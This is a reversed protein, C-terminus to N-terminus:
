PKALSNLWASRVPNSTPSGGGQLYLQGDDGIHVVGGIRQAEANLGERVGPKALALAFEPKLYQGVEPSYYHVEGTRKNTRIQMLSENGTADKLTKTEIDYPNKGTAAADRLGERYNEGRQRIRELDMQTSRQLAEIHERSKRDLSSNSLDAANHAQQLTLNALERSSTNKMGEAQAGEVLADHAEKKLDKLDAKLGAVAPMGAEGLSGLFNPNKSAMLALGFNMLAQNAAEKRDAKQTEPNRRQEVDAMMLDAYKNSQPALGALNNQMATLYEPKYADMPDNVAPMAGFAPAPPAAPPAQVLDGMAYSPVSGGEAMSAGQPMLMALGRQGLAAWGAQRRDRKAAATDDMRQKTLAALQEQMASVDQNPLEAAALGTPAATAASPADTPAAALAPRGGVYNRTERPVINDPRGAAIWKDVHGPGWNYAMLADRDNGYHNRLKLALERGVRNLEEPSDDRAPMVGYGPNRATAPMVQMAAMAGKPSRLLQGSSDYDHGGSEKGLIYRIFSADNAHNQVEAGDAYHQIDSDGVSSNFMDDPVPLGALGGSDFAVMGGDAFEHHLGVSFQNPVIGRNNSAGVSFGTHEDLPIDAGYDSRRTMPNYGAHIDASGVQRHAGQTLFQKALELLQNHHEEPPPGMPPLRYDNTSGGKPPLRYDNTSGGDAMGPGMPQMGQPSQPPMPMQPPPAGTGMPPVGPVPPLGGPGAGGPAQAPPTQQNFVQNAVTGQPAQAQQAGAAMRDIFMGALTGVTPDVVGLQMAQAIKQKNGGYDKAVQEPSQAGFPKSHNLGTAM